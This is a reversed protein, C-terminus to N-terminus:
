RKKRRRKTGFIDGFLCSLFGQTIGQVIAGSVSMKKRSM